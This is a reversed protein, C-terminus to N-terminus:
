IPVINERGEEGHLKSWQGPFDGSRKIHPTGSILLNM